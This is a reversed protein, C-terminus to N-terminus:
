TGNLTQTIADIRRLRDAIKVSVTTHMKRRTTVTLIIIETRLCQRETILARIHEPQEKTTRGTCVATVIRKRGQRSITAITDLRKERVTMTRM